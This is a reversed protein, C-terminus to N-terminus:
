EKDRVIVIRLTSPQCVQGLFEGILRNVKSGSGTDESSQPGRWDIGVCIAVTGKTQGLSVAGKTIPSRGVTASRDIIPYRWYAFSSVPYSKAVLWGAVFEHNCRTTASGQTAPRM